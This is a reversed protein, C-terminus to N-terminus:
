SIALGLVCIAAILIACSVLGIVMVTKSVKRVNFLVACCGWLIAGFVISALILSCCVLATLQWGHEFINLAALLATYNFFVASIIGTVVVLISIVLGFVIIGSFIGVVGAVCNGLIRLVAGLGNESEEDEVPPPTVASERIVAEGLTGVNVPEGYMQLKQRPTRAEPIIMWAILYILACPLFYTFLALATYLIRMINANWGLYVALGGFVGGFVHDKGSRYLKKGNSPISFSFTHPPRQSEDFPPPTAGADSAESANDEGAEAYESEDNIDEPRGMREIVNQVDAIVIGASGANIKEAFLERIRSEIDAVIEEGETGKFTEKLQHLYDQLLNFADEDMYFIQGDVNTAFSRKM